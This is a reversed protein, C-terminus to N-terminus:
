QWFFTYPYTQQWEPTRLIQITLAYVTMVIFYLIKVNIANKKNLKSLINPFYVCLFIEFYRFFRSIVSANLAMIAIAPLIAVLRAVFQDAKTKEEIGEKRYVFEGGVFILLYIMTKFIVALRGNSSFAADGIYYSYRPFFILFVKFIIPWVFFCAIAIGYLFILFRKTSKLEYLFYAFLFVIASSHFQSAILVLIVFKIKKRNIIADYTYLLIAIAIGQRFGSLFFDFLMLTFFLFVSTCADKSYKYFFRGVSFFMFASSVVILIRPSSSIKSLLHCYLVYGKELNVIELYEDPHEAIITFIHCYRQTDTGVNYSRLLALLSLYGLVLLLYWKNKNIRTRKEYKEICFDVFLIIFINIVFLYM